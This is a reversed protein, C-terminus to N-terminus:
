VLPFTENVEVFDFAMNADKFIFFCVDDGSVQIGEMCRDFKPSGMWNHIWGFMNKHGDGNGDM